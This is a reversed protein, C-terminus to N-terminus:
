ADTAFTRDPAVTPAQLKSALMRRMDGLFQDFDLPKTWYDAAGGEKAANVEEPMASASLAVVRCARTSEDARLQRLVEVGDMDPLRMDLLILDIAAARAIALGNQGTEASLLTVGPWRLLLQEVLMFNVPNDEIYLVVGVPPADAGSEDPQTQQLPLPTTDPELNTRLIIRVTTGEGVTSRVEIEGRMLHVLQRALALGLGTGEINNRERGLRNFPEYLHALQGSDMGMGTDIVDVVTEEAGASVLVEITGHPRNYKIANTLLNILVQRVRRADGRIGVPGIATPNRIITVGADKAASQTMRIAEEISGLLDVKHDDVVDHGGEIKSVDLVDNILALLHWGALRIREVHNRQDTTLPANTDSQLLQSFGVVANLPTRLEHSMRSLFETKALSESEAAVQALKAEQAMRMHTADRIVVTMLASEGEGLKSISAEIPFEQGDSRVASLSHLGMRRATSGTNSFHALHGAHAAQLRRPIFQDLGSGLVDAASVRFMEGAARNFLRIKHSADISIIADMATDVLGALQRDQFEFAKSREFNDLAFSIDETMEDLLAIVREDFFGVSTMHLTLTGITVGGCRFPCAAIAKTGIAEGFVRWPITRPDEDVNNSIQRTGTFAALGSLGSGLVTRDAIKVKLHRVFDDAPGAWAVHRMSDGDILSVYAISAHGHEVCIRCLEEFLSQADKSRVIASNTRSLATYFDIHRSSADLMRNFERAVERFEGPVDESARVGVDGNRISRATYVLSGLAGVMRRAMLMAIALVAAVLVLTVVMSQRFRKEQPGFVFETPIAATAFWNAKTLQKRAFVREVGDVGPALGVDGANLERSRKITPSVDKGVLAEFDPRASVITGDADYILMRSGPPLTFRSWDRQLSDLDLLVTLTGIRLGASDRLPWSMASVMRQVVPAKFPRSLTIADSALAARYWDYTNLDVPIPGPGTVSFCIPKGSADTVFVNAVHRRRKPVADLLPDCRTSDLALIMPRRAIFQLYQETDALLSDADQAVSSAYNEVSRYAAERAAHADQKLEYWQLAILPAAIAAVLLVLQRLM